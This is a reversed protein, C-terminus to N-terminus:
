WQATLAADCGVFIYTSHSHCGRTTKELGRHGILPTHPCILHPPGAISHASPITLTGVQMDWWWDGTWMESYIRTKREPSQWEQIPCYDIKDAWEPTSILRQIVNIPDHLWLQSNQKINPIEVEYEKWPLGGKMQAMK